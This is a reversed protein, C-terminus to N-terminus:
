NKFHKFCPIECIFRFVDLNDSLFKLSFINRLSYEVTTFTSIYSYYQLNECKERKEEECIGYVYFFTKKNEEKLQESFYKNQYVLKMLFYYFNFCYM